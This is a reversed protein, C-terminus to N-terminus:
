GKKYFYFLIFHYQEIRGEFQGTGLILRDLAVVKIFFVIAPNYSEISKHWWSNRGLLNSLSKFLKFLPYILELYFIFFLFDM